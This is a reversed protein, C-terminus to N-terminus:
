KKRGLENLAGLLFYEATSGKIVHERAEEPTQLDAAQIVASGEYAPPASDPDVHVRSLEEENATRTHAGTSRTRRIRKLM